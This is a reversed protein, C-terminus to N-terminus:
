PRALGGPAPDMLLRYTGDRTGVGTVTVTQGVKINLSDPDHTSVLLAWPTVIGTGEDKVDMRFYHLPAPPRIETIPQTVVGRLIMRNNSAFVASWSATPNEPFPNNRLDITVDAVDRVVTVTSMLSSNGSLDAISAQYIGARVNVFEFTNDSKLPAEIMPLGPMSSMLRVIRRFPAPERAINVVKGSVKVPQLDALRIGEFTILLDAAALSDIRVPGLGVNTSGQTISKLDYLVLDPAIGTYAPLTAVTYAGPLVRPLDFSGDPRIPIPLRDSGSLLLQQPFPIGPPSSIVVRGRIPVPFAGPTFDYGALAGGSTVTVISAGSQDFGGPYYTLAFLLGATVYYRGPPINEIRYHGDSDSRTISVFNSLDDVPMAAVRVGAVPAGSPLKLTGSISGNPPNQQAGFALLAIWVATLLKMPAM